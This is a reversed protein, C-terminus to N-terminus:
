FTPLKGFNFGLGAMYFTVSNEDSFRRMATVEPQLAFSKSVRINVGLGLRGLLGSSSTASDRGSSSSTSGSAAVVVAGPTLVLSLSESLNLGLLLPLHIYAINISASAGSSSTSSIRFLQAGPDIALDFSKSKVPNYKFDIGLSSGNKLSFGLDAQEAVGYRLQYTPFTPLTVSVNEKTKVEEIQGSASSRLSTTTTEGSISLAEAAITHSFEGKPTTRPTGYVNPNPCGTLLTTLGGLLGLVRGDSLSFKM